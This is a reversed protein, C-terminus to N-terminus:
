RKAGYAGTFAAGTPSQVLFAGGAEEAAPGYFRGNSTGSMSGDATTLTGSFSNSFPNAGASNSSGPAYRMTGSLDLGPASSASIGDRMISTGSSALGVSREGFDVQLRVNAAVMYDAASPQVLLGALKGTFTASGTTPVATGPTAAGYSVAFVQELTRESLDPRNWVGFSQYNWGLAYPNAILASIESPVDAFVTQTAKSASWAMDIEPHGVPNAAVARPFLSRDYMRLESLASAEDYLVTIEGGDTGGSGTIAEGVGVDAARRISATAGLARAIAGGGRHDEWRTFPVPSSSTTSGQSSPAIPEARTSGSTGSSRSGSGSTSSAGQTSGAAATTSQSASRPCLLAATLLCGLLEPLTLERTSGDAYTATATSGGGGSACGSVVVAAVLAVVLRKMTQM